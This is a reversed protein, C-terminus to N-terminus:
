LAEEVPIEEPTGDEQQRIETLRQSFHSLQKELERLTKMGQEYRDVTEELSFEGSEMQSIVSEVESLQQEFSPKKKAAM